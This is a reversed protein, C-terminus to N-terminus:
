ENRGRQAKIGERTYFRLILNGVALVTALVKFAQTDDPFVKQIEQVLAFAAVIVNFWITKSAIPHKDM